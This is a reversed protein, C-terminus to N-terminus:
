QFISYQIPGTSEITKITDILSKDINKMKLDTSTVDKTNISSYDSYKCNDTIRFDKNSGFLSNMEVSGSTKMSFPSNLQNTTSSMPIYSGQMSIQDSAISTPNEM